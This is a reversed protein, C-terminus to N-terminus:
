AGTETNNLYHDIEGRMYAAANEPSIPNIYFGTGWEFGAVRTLRPIIEIHWHYFRYDKGDCPSTHIIYNFPPDDLLTHMKGLTGKLIGALDVKENDTIDEFSPDHKKPLIWTEFPFSSAYPTLAVFHESELIMREKSEAETKILDDFICMGGTTEYYYMAGSLEEMINKPVIPTAIIQTHPHSLSAGAELGNNKFILIYKFRKDRHLDNYRDKMASIIEVVQGDTMKATPTKHEPSEIIVEHAGIGTMVHHLRNVRHDLEGEIRLAPFKNPICRIWWGPTNPATNSPRYALIEPPTLQENGPCFPCKVIDAKAYNEHDKKHQDKLETPRKGRDKAIVIWKNTIYDKRLEPM